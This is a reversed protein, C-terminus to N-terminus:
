RAHDVVPDTMRADGRSRRQLALDAPPTLPSDAGRLYADADEIHILLRSGDKHGRLRSQSHLDYVRKPKCRLYDGAEEVTMWPSVREAAASLEVREALRSAVRDALLDCLPGIAATLAADLGHSPDHGNARNPESPLFPRRNASM